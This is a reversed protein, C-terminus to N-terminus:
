AHEDIQQLIGPKMAALIARAEGLGPIHICPAIDLLPRLVFDRKVMQPHPVTLRADNIQLEDYLLLDLDLTRPGWREGTRLRGHAAEMSQLQDLLAHPALTTELEVVANIYDPQGPPGVPPSRYLPSQRRMRTGPLTDLQSLASRVHRQPGDLNSGLAIYARSM